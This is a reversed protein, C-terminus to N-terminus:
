FPIKETKVIILQERLKKLNYFKGQIVYGISGGVKVKKILRSTKLNVCLGCLTFVYNPAFKICYKYRYTITVINM